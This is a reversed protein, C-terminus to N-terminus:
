KRMSKKISNLIIQSNDVYEQMQATSGETVPNCLLDKLGSLINKIRRLNTDNAMVTPSLTAIGRCLTTVSRSAQELEPHTSKQLNFQELLMSADNTIRDLEGRNNTLAAKSSASINEIKVTSAAIFFWLVTIVAISSFYVRLSFVNCLVTSFLVMWVIAIVIYVISFYGLLWKLVVSDVGVPLWGIYALLVIELLATYTMNFWFLTTPEEPMFVFFLAVTVIIIMVPAVINAILSTARNNM